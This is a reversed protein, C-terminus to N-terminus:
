SLDANLRATNCVFTFNTGVRAGTPAVYVDYDQTRYEIMNHTVRVNVVNAAISRLTSDDYSFLEGEATLYYIGKDKASWVEAVDSAVYRASGKGKLKRLEGNENIFYLLKRSANMCLSNARVGAVLENNGVDTASNQMLYLTSDKVYYASANNSRMQYPADAIAGYRSSTGDEGIGYLAYGRESINTYVLSFFSEGRYVHMGNIYESNEVYDIPFNSGKGGISVPRQGDRLIYACDETQVLLQTSRFLM